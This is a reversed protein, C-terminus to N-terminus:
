LGAASLEATVQDVAGGPQFEPSRHEPDAYGRRAQAAHQLEHALTTESWRGGRWMVSVDFPSATFGQRCGVITRFGEVGREDICDTETVVLVRPPRDTRGYASWIQATARELEALERPEGRVGASACGALGIAAAFAFALARGSTRQGRTKMTAQFTVLLGNFWSPGGTVLVLALHALAVDVHWDLEAGQTTAANLRRAVWGDAADLALSAAMLVLGLPRPWLHLGVLGCALGAITVAGPLASLGPWTEESHQTKHMM